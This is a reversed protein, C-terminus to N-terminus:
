KHIKTKLDKIFNNYGKQSITSSVDSRQNGIFSIGEPIIDTILLKDNKAILRFDVNIDRDTKDKTKTSVMYVGDKPNEIKTIHIDKNYDKLKPIYNELLYDRYLELFEKQQTENIQKWYAGLVFKAVWQSDVITDSFKKYEEKRKQDTYSKNNLISQSNKSMDDIFKEVDKNGLQTANAVNLTFLLSLIVFLKKM